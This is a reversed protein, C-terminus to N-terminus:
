TTCSTYLGYIITFISSGKTQADLGPIEENLLKNMQNTKEALCKQDNIIADRAMSIAENRNDNMAWSVTIGKTDCPISFKYEHVKNEDLATVLTTKIDKSCSLVTTMGSYVSPGIRIKGDPDPKSRVM